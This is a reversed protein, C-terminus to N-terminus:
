NFIDPFEKCKGRRHSFIKGYPELREEIASDPLKYPVDYVNVFTLRRSAAHTVSVRKRIILSSKRRFRNHIDETSFTVLVGDGPLRQLCRVSSATIGDRLFAYFIDTTTAFHEPLNFFALCPCDPATNCPHFNDKEFRSSSLYREYM